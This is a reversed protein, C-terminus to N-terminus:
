GFPTRSRPKIPAFSSSPDRLITIFLQGPLIARRTSSVHQFITSGAVDSCPLMAPCALSVDNNSLSPLSFQPFISPHFPISKSKSEVQPNALVYKMKELLDDPLFKREGWTSLLFILKDRDVKAHIDKLVAPYAENFQKAFMFPFPGCVHKMISDILYFIPRKYSSNTAPNVLRAIVIEVFFAALNINHEAMATLSLIMEKDPWDKLQELVAAFQAVVDQPNAQM